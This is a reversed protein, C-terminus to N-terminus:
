SVFADAANNSSKMRNLKFATVCTVFCLMKDMTMLFFHGPLSKGFTRKPFAFDKPHHPKDPLSLLSEKFSMSSRAAM